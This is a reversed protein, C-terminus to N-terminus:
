KKVRRNTPPDKKKGGAGGASRDIKEKRDAAVLPDFHELIPAVKTNVRSSILAIM